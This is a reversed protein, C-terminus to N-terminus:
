RAMRGRRPIALLDAKNVTREGSNLRSRAPTLAKVFEPSGTGIPEAWVPYDHTPGPLDEIADAVEDAGIDGTQRIFDAFEPWTVDRHRDKTALYHAHGWRKMAYQAAEHPDATWNRRRRRKGM